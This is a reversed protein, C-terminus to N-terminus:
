ERETNQVDSRSADLYFPESFLNSCLIIEPDNQYAIEAYRDNNRDHSTRRELYKLSGHFQEISGTSFTM